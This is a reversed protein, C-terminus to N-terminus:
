GLVSTTMSTGPLAPANRSCSFSSAKRQLSLQAMLRLSILIVLGCISLITIQFWGAQWFYTEIPQLTPMVNINEPKTWWPDGGLPAEVTAPPWDAMPETM